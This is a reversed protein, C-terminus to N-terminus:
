KTIPHTKLGERRMIQNIDYKSYSKSNAELIEELLARVDSWKVLVEDYLCDSLYVDYLSKKTLM